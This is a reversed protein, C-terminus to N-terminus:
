EQSDWGYVDDPALTIRIGVENGDKYPSIAEDMDNDEKEAIARNLYIWPVDRVLGRFDPTDSNNHADWLIIDTWADMYPLIKKLKIM